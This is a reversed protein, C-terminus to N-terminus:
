LRNLPAPQSASSCEQPTGPVVAVPITTYNTRRRDAPRRTSSRRPPRTCFLAHAYFSVHLPPSNQRPPSTETRSLGATHFRNRPFLDPLIACVSEAHSSAPSPTQDIDLSIASPKHTSLLQPATPPHPPPRAPTLSSSLAIPSLLVRRAPWIRTDCSRFTLRLLRPPCSLKLRVRSPCYTDEVAIVSSPMPRLPANRAVHSRGRRSM